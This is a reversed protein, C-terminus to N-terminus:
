YREGFRMRRDRADRPQNDYRTSEDIRRVEDDYRLMWTDLSDTRTSIKGGKIMEDARAFYEEITENPIRRIETTERVLDRLLILKKFSPTVTPDKLVNPSVDFLTRAPQSRMEAWDNRPVKGEIFANKFELSIKESPLDKILEVVKPAEPTSKPEDPLQETRELSVAEESFEPRIQGPRVPSKVPVTEEVRPPTSIEQPVVVAKPTMKEILVNQEDLPLRAIKEGARKMFEGVTENTRYELHLSSKSLVEEALLANRMAKVTETNESPHSRAYEEIDSFFRGGVRTGENKLKLTEIIRGGMVKAQRGLSLEM